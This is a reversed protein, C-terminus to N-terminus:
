LTFKVMDSASFCHLVCRQAGLADPCRRIICPDDYQVVYARAPGVDTAASLAGYSYRQFEFVATFRRWTTPHTTGSVELAKSSEVKPHLLKLYRSQRSVRLVVVRYEDVEIPGVRIDGYKRRIWYVM